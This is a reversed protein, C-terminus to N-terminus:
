GTSCMAPRLPAYRRTSVLPGCTEIGGIAGFATRLSGYLRATRVARPSTARGCFVDAARVGGGHCHFWDAIHIGGLSMALPPRKPYFGPPCRPTAIRYEGPTTDRCSERNGQPHSMTRFHKSIVDFLSRFQGLGLCAHPNVFLQAAHSPFGVRLAQAMRPSRAEFPAATQGNGFSRGVGIHAFVAIHIIGQEDVRHKHSGDLGLGFVGVNREDDVVLAPVAGPMNAALIRQVAMRARANRIRDLRRALPSPPFCQSM